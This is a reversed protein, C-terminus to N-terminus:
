TDDGASFLVRRQNRKRGEQNMRLIFGPNKKEKQKM